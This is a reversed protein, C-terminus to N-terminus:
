EHELLGRQRMWATIAVARGLRRAARGGVDLDTSDVGERVLVEALSGSRGPRLNAYADKLHLTPGTSGINANMALGSGDWAAVVDGVELFQQWSELFSGADTAKALRDPSLEMRGLHEDSPWRKAPRIIGEFLERTELKCATWQFLETAREDVRCPRQLSEGYAVVVREPQHLLVAPVKRSSRLGARKQRPQTPEGAHSAIQQDIMRDLAGLLGDLGATEPELTRLAMVISEITSLQHREPAIRIRYRSPTTPRLRFHPLNQLWENDRHIRRAQSWTGDILLLHDPRDAAAVGDLDISDESPYLVGTKPPTIIPRHMRERDSADAVQLAVRELGLTAIRATGLAHRRERRHQLIIIGTRNVVRPIAACLCLAAPKDCRLCM